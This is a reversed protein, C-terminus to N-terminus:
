NIEIDIYAIEPFEKIINQEVKDIHAGVLRPVRDVTKYMLRAFENFNVKIEDWEEKLDNGEYIERYLPSGNWEVTVYISYKGVDIAESKFDLVKEICPDTLLFAIANEKVDEDLPKGV